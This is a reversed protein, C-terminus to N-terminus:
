EIAGRMEVDMLGASDAVDASLTAHEVVQDPTIRTVTALGDDGIQRMAPFNRLVALGVRKVQALTDLEMVPRIECRSVYFCGEVADRFRRGADADRAGRQEPRDALDVRAVLVSDFELQGRRARDIEHHRGKGAAPVHDEALLRQFLIIVVQALDEVDRTGTWKLRLPPDLVLDPYHLSVRVVPVFAQGVEVADFDVM